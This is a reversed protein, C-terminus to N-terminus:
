QNSQHLPATHQMYSIPLNIYEEYHNFYSVAEGTLEGPGVIVLYTKKTPTSFRFSYEILQGIANRLCYMVNEFPKIEYLWQETSSERMIDVRGNYEMTIKDKPHKKKLTAYLSNQIINHLQRVMRTAIPGREYTEESKPRSTEDEEVNDEGLAINDVHLFPGFIKILHDPKDPDIKHVTGAYNLGTKRNIGLEVFEINVHHGLREPRHEYVLGHREVVVAYAVVELTGHAGHSKLAIIDGPKFNLFIRFYSKLKGINIENDTHQEIWNDIEDNSKNVLHSLDSNYLFGIAVSNSTLMEPLVDKTDTGNEDKYKTGIIFYNRFPKGKVYHSWLDRAYEILNQDANKKSLIFQQLGLIKSDESFRGGLGYAIKLLGERTYIPLLQNNSYLYAIKWKAVSHFDITEIYDWTGEQAARAIEIIIAKINNFAQVSTKGFKNNWAYKSDSDFTNSFDKRAKYKWLGFKTLPMGGIEGLDKSGFELWYCYANHNQLDAYEEITMKELAEVPWKNLFGELTKQGTEVLIAM